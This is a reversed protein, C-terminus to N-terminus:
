QFTYRPQGDNVHHYQWLASRLRGISMRNMFHLSRVYLNATIVKFKVFIVWAFTKCKYFASGPWSLLINHYKPSDFLNTITTSPSARM